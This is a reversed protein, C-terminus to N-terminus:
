QGREEFKGAKSASEAVVLAELRRVEALREHMRAANAEFSASARNLASAIATM